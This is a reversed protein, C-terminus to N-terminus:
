GEAPTAAEIEARAAALVARGSTVMDLFATVREDRQERMRDIAHQRDADPLAAIWKALSVFMDVGANISADIVAKKIEEGGSDM